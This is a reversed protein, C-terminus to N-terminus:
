IFVPPARSLKSLRRTIALPAIDCEFQTVFGINLSTLKFDDVQDASQEATIFAACHETHEEEQCEIAHAISASQMFLMLLVIIVRGFQCYSNKM